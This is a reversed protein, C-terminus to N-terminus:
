FTLARGVGENFEEAAQSKYSNRKKSINRNRKSTILLNM